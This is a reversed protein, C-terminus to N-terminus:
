FFKKIIMILMIFALVLFIIMIAKKNFVTTPPPENQRDFEEEDIFWCPNEVMMKEKIVNGDEDLMCEDKWDKECPPCLNKDDYPIAPILIEKEKKYYLMGNPKKYCIQLAKIKKEEENMGAFPDRFNTLVCETPKTRFPSPPSKIINRCSTTFQDPILSINPEIPQICEGDLQNFKVCDVETNKNTLIPVQFGNGFCNEINTCDKKVMRQKQDYLKYDSNACTTLSCEPRFEESLGDKYQPKINNRIVKDVSSSFSKLTDGEQSFSCGCIPDKYLKMIDKKKIGQSNTTYFEDRDCYNKIGVDCTSNKLACLKGCLESEINYTDDSNKTKLNCYPQLYNIRCKDNPLAEPYNNEVKLDENNVCSFNEITDTEYMQDFILQCCRMPKTDYIFRYIGGDDLLYNMTKVSHIGKFGVGIPDSEMKIMNVKTAIALTLVPIMAFLLTALSPLLPLIVAGATGFTALLAAASEYDKGAIKLLISADLDTRIPKADFSAFTIQSIWEGMKCIFGFDWVKPNKFGRFMKKDVWGVYETQISTNYLIVPNAGTSYKQILPEFIRRFAFCIDTVVGASNKNYYIGALASDKYSGKFLRPDGIKQSNGIYKDNSVTIDNRYYEPVDVLGYGENYVNWKTLKTINSAQCFTLGSVRLIENNEDVNLEIAPIVINPTELRKKAEPLSTFTNPVDQYSHNHGLYNDVPYPIKPGYSVLIDIGNAKPNELNSWDPLKQVEGLGAEIIVPTQKPGTNQFATPHTVLYIPGTYLYDLYCMPHGGSTDSLDCESM